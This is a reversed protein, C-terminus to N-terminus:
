RKIVRELAKLLLNCQNAVERGVHNGSKLNKEEWQEIKEAQAKTKETASILKKIKANRQAMTEGKQKAM